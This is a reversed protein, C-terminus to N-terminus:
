SSVRENRSDQAAIDSGYLFSGPLSSFSEEQKM